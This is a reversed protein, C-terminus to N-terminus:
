ADPVIDDLVNVTSKISELAAVADDPIDVNNLADELDKIRGSLESKIKDLQGSLANLTASLESLKAMIFEVQKPLNLYFRILDM